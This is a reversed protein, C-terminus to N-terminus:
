LCMIHSGQRTLWNTLKSAIFQDLFPRDTPNLSFMIHGNPYWDELSMSDRQIENKLQRRAHFLQADPRPTLMETDPQVEAASRQMGEVAAIRTLGRGTSLLGLCVGSDEFRVDVVTDTMEYMMTYQNQGMLCFCDRFTEMLLGKWENRSMGAGAASLKKQEAEVSQSKEEAGIEDYYSAARPAMALLKDLKEAMKAQESVLESVAALCVQITWARIDQLKKMSRAFCDDRMSRLARSLSNTACWEMTEALVEFIRTFLQIIVRVLPDEPKEFRRFHGRVVDIVLSIEGIM